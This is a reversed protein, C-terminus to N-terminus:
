RTPSSRRGRADRRRRRGRPRALPRRPVATVIGAAVFTWFAVGGILGMRMLIYLVGNHPIYAIM